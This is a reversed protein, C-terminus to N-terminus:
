SSWPFAAGWPAGLRGKGVLDPSPSVSKGPYEPKLGPSALPASGLSHFALNEPWQSDGSRHANNRGAGGGPSRESLPM